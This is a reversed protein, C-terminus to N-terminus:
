FRTITFLAKMPIQTISWIKATVDCRTSEPHQSTPLRSSVASRSESNRPPPTKGLHLPWGLQQIAHYHVFSWVLSAVCDSSSFSHASETQFLNLCQYNFFFNALLLLISKILSPFSSKQSCDLSPTGHLIDILEWPIQHTQDIWYWSGVYSAWDEMLVLMGASFLHHPSGAVECYRSAQSLLIAQSLTQSSSALCQAM